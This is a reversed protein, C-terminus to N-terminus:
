NWKEVEENQESDRVLYVYIYIAAVLEKRDKENQAWQYIQKAMEGLSDLMSEDGKKKIEEEFRALMYALRALNIKEKMDRILDLIRYLFAKGKESNKQFFKNLYQLKKNLIHEVFDDWSFVMDKEFLAIANKNPYGKASDELDGTIQAMNVVPYKGPFLGIGASISLTNQTFKQFCNKLDVAFGIIDDWSGVIFLDDGGSYVITASRKEPLKGKITFQPNNLIHNIHYKFFMSMKRSFTATRSITMYKEGYQPHSFGNVFAAGLNDVDARLVAIRNIGEASEALEQFSEGNTYDGVWLRKSVNLGTYSDNKTYARIYNHEEEQMTELMKKYNKAVFHKGDFLPISVDEKKDVVAYFGKYLINPSMKVLADCMECIDDELLHSSTRCVRCERKGEEETDCNLARIQEASYRHMKKMSIMRSVGRFINRYSGNEENRLDSASCEQYGCGLFLATGFEKRLWENVEQEFADLTQITQETNPLLIYAHGGGSYLLNARTIELREAMEDFLNEMLIELYFSRSRLSKLADKSAITYIFNQIGSMDMSYLLFVKKKYLEDARDFMLKKYDTRGNEQMWIEICTALAATLKVHDYLSIDAVESKITSSPVFSLESELLELLSNLYEPTYSIAKLNEKLHLVIEGYMSEEYNTKQESPYNIDEKLQGPFYAYKQNNGNLLNFVSELPREREFGPEEEETKRRDTASAINDAVYTVYALSDDPIKANRLSSGHHFRVQDLIDKDQIEVESALFDYGSISHKRGDNYRYLLKGVDHLLAGIIAKTIRQEM